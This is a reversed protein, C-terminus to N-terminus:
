ATEPSSSRTVHLRDLSPPEQIAVPRIYSQAADVREGKDDISLDFWGVGAGPLMSTCAPHGGPRPM